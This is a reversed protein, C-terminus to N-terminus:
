RFHPVVSSEICGRYHPRGGRLSELVIFTRSCLSFSSTLM